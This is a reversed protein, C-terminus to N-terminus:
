GVLETQTAAARMIPPVVGGKFRHVSSHVGRSTSPMSPAWCFCYDHGPDAAGPDYTAAHSWVVLDRSELFEFDFGSGTGSLVYRDDGLEIVDPDALGEAVKTRRAYDASRTFCDPAEFGEDCACIPGQAAVTCVAHGHCATPGCPDSSSRADISGSDLSPSGGMSGADPPSAVGGTGSGGEGGSGANGPTAEGVGGTGSGDSKTDATTEADLHGETRELGADAPGLEIGEAVACGALVPLLLSGFVFGSRDAPARREGCERPSEREVSGKAPPPTM